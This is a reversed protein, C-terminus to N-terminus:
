GNPRAYVTCAACCTEAVAVASLRGKPLQVRELVWAALKESTPNELGPVENLCHHDLLLHIPEWARDIDGFDVIWGTHPDVEGTIYLTIKFSHGHLRACKHGVPVNPLRHAAEIRYEKSIETRM